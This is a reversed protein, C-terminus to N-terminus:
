LLHWGNIGLTKEVGLAFNTIYRVCFAAQKETAPPKKAMANIDMEIIQNKYRNLIPISKKFTLYDTYQMSSTSSIVLARLDFLSQQIQGVTAANAVSAALASELQDVDESTVIPEAIAHALGENILLFAYACSRLTQKIDGTLLAAEANKIHGKVDDDILSDAGSLTFIDVDFFKKSTDRLFDETYVHLNNATAKDVQIGNHKFGVRAKNLDGMKGSYPMLKQSKAEIITWSSEFDFRNKGKMDVDVEKATTWILTEVADQFLSVAISPSFEGGRNMEAEGAHFLYRALLLQKLAKMIM